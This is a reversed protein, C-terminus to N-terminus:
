DAPEGRRRLRAVGLWVAFGIVVFAGSGVTFVTSPSGLRSAPIPLVDPEFQITGTFPGHVTESGEITVILVGTALDLSGSVPLDDEVAVGVQFTCVDALEGWAYVSGTGTVIETAQDIDVSASLARHAEFTCGAGFSDHTFVNSMRLTGYLDVHNGGTLVATAGNQTATNDADTRELGSPDWTGTEITRPDGPPSLPGDFLGHAAYTFPISALTLAVGNTAPDVTGSVTLPEVEGARTQGNQSLTVTHRVTGDITLHVPDYLGIGASLESLFDLPAAGSNEVAGFNGSLDIPGGNAAMSLDLQSTSPGEFTMEGMDTPELATQAEVEADYTWTTGLDTTWPGSTTTTTPPETVITTTTEPRCAILFLWVGCAAIARKLFRRPRIDPRAPM